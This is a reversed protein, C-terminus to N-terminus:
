FAAVWGLHYQQNDPSLWDVTHEDVVTTLGRFLRNRGDKPAHEVRPRCVISMADWRQYRYNYRIRKNHRLNWSLAESAGERNAPWGRTWLAGGTLGAALGFGLRSEVQCELYESLQVMGMGRARNSLEITAYIDSMSTLTPSQLRCIDLRNGHYADVGCSERYFGEVFTKSYNPKFGCSEFVGCVSACAERRVIVDDGFVFVEQLNMSLWKTVNRFKNLHALTLGRHVLCAAAALAWFVLSEVPFCMASGMPAFMHLKVLENKIKVYMPRSAALYRRDGKSFLFCVLGWSVLDSADKLDITAFERTRSSELALSGNSEQKDFKISMLVLDNLISRNTKLIYSTEIAKELLRRQGQQIWMLGSPQTCIIRPGRKDKPVIALKAVTTAYKASTYDFMEPSPTFYASMPYLEDCLRTAKGDIADWKCRGKRSDSVAGTGHSPQINSWDIHATIAQILFRAIKLSEGAHCSDDRDESQVQLEYSSKSLRQCVINRDRFGAIASEVQTKNVEHSKSKYTLLCIQRLARLYMFSDTCVFERVLDVLECPVTLTNSGGTSKLLRMVFLGKSLDGSDHIESSSAPIEGPRGSDLILVSDGKWEIVALLDKWLQEYVAARSVNLQPEIGYISFIDRQLRHYIAQLTM